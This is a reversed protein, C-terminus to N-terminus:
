QGEGALLRQLRGADVDVGQDDVGHLKELWRDPFEDGDIELGALLNIRRQDVGVLQRRRYEIKRQVRAVRHRVATLEPYFGAIDFQLIIRDSCEIAGGGAFIHHNGEGVGAV